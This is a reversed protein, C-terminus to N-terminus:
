SASFPNSGAFERIIKVVGPSSKWETARSEMRESLCRQPPSWGAQWFEPEFMARPYTEAAKEFATDTSVQLPSSASIASSSGQRVRLPMTNRERRSEPEPGRRVFLGVEEIIFKASREPQSRAFRQLLHLASANGLPIRVLLTELTPIELVVPADRMIIRCSAVIERPNLTKGRIDISIHELALSSLDSLSLTFATAVSNGDLGMHLYRTHALPTSDPPARPVIAKCVNMLSGPGTLIVFRPRFLTAMAM